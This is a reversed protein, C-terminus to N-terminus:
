RLILDLSRDAEKIVKKDMKEQLSTEDYFASPVPPIYEDSCFKCNCTKLCYRAIVKSFSLAFTEM